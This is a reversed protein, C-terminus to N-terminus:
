RLASAMRLVADALLEPSTALNLRVHGAGGTGFNPGSVLAVRGRELFVGAPDGDLRLARCDLWALYTGQPERYLV